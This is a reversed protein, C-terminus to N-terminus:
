ANSLFESEFYKIIKYVNGKRHKLYGIKNTEQNYDEKMWEKIDEMHKKLMPILENCLEPTFSSKEIMKIKNMYGHNCLTILDSKSPMQGNVIQIDKARIKQNQKQPAAAAAAAVDNKAIEMLEPDKEIYNNLSFEDIVFANVMSGNVNVQKYLKSTM